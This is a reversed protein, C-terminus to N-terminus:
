DDWRFQDPPPTVTTNGTPPGGFTGNRPSQNKKRKSRRVLFIILFLLGGIIFVGWTIFNPITMAMYIPNEEGPRLKWTLTKGDASVHTANHDDVKVPLTLIFRLNMQDYILQDLGRLGQQRMDTLDAQTDLILKTTFLGHEMRFPKDLGQIRPSDALQLTDSHGAGAVQNQFLRIASNVGAKLEQVPPEKAINKVEKVAKWGQKNKGEEITTIQYGNKEMKQKLEDFQAVILDNSVIQFEYVGSGDRNVKIHMHADICGTLLVALLCSLLIAYLGKKRLMM